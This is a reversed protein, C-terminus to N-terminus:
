NSQSCAADSCDTWYYSLFKFIFIHIIQEHKQCWGLQLRTWNQSANVTWNLREPLSVSQRLTEDPGTAGVGTHLRWSTLPRRKRKGFLSVSWLDASLSPDCGRGEGLLGAEKGSGSWTTKTRRSSIDSSGATCWRGLLQCLFHFIETNKEPSSVLSSCFHFHAKRLGFTQSTLM